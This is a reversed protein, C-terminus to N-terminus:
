EGTVESSIFNGQADFLYDSHNVEAEYTIKGAADTIKAAEKIKKGPFNKELYQRVAEPLEATKIECETELCNGKEDFNASMEMKQFDFEAEYSVNEKQWHEVKAGPFKKAFAEKVLQPVSKESIKQSFVCTSFFLFSVVLIDKKMVSYYGFITM